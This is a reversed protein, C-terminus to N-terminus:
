DKRLMSPEAGNKIFEKKVAVEKACPTANAAKPEAVGANQEESEEV